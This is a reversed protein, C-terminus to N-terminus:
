CYCMPGFLLIVDATASPRDISRADAVEMTKLSHTKEASMEIAMKINTESIDYLYTEYGLEALWFSYVGYGGGIDYIVAPTTPLMQQLIEKTRHLEILGLDTFLRNKEIGANYGALVDEDITKM